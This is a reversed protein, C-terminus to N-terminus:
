WPATHADLSLLGALRAEYLCGLASCHPSQSRQLQIPVSENKKKKSHVGGLVSDFFHQWIWDHFVATLRITVYLAPDFCNSCDTSREFKVQFGSSSAISTKVHLM